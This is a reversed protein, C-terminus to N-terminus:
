DLLEEQFTILIGMKNGQHVQVFCTPCMRGGRMKVLGCLPCDVYMDSLKV